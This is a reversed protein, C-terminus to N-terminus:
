SRDKVEAIAEKIIEVGRCLDEAEIILPPGLKIWKCGTEVVLLGRKQCGMVVRHAEKADKFELGALLGKGAHFRVECGKLRGEMILGLAHSRNILNKEEIAKIVEIGIAAMVPHGSHTSHLHAHEIVSPDELIAKPGLLAALPYGGGCAKGITVFEPVLDPYWEHAFLKGTRGFGGQIEDICFHIDPFTKINTRIRNMTPEEKHFQASPAHYPEMIAAGVSEQPLGFFDRGIWDFCGLHPLQMKGSMILAGLTVGHMADYRPAPEDKGVEDPDILGGWIGPKGTYVRCVRWFAETAESGTSYLVVSEYGTFEKLMDKYREAYPNEYAHGYCCQVRSDFAAQKLKKNNAGLIAAFIGGSTFDIYRKGEEDWMKSGKAKVIKIM